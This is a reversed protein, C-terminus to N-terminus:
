GNGIKEQFRVPTFTVSLVCLFDYIHFSCLIRLFHTLCQYKIFDIDDTPDVSVSILSFSIIYLGGAVSYTTFYVQVSSCNFGAGVQETLGGSLVDLNKCALLSIYAHHQQPSCIM